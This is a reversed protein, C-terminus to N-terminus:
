LGSRDRCVHTRLVVRVVYVGFPLTTETCVTDMTLALHPHNHLGWRTASYKLIMRQWPLRINGSIETMLGPM